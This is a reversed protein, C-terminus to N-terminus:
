TKYISNKTKDSFMYKFLWILNVLSANAKAAAKRPVRGSPAPMLLPLQPLQSSVSSSTSTISSQESFDGLGLCIQMFIKSAILNRYIVWKWQSQELEQAEEQKSLADSRCHSSGRDIQSVFEHRTHIGSSLTLNKIISSYVSNSEKNGNYSFRM